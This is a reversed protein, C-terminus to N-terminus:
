GRAPYGYVRARDMRSDLHLGVMRCPQRANWPLVFSWWLNNIRDEEAEPIQFTELVSSMYKTVEPSFKTNGWVVGTAKDVRYPILMREAQYNKWPGDPDVFKGKNRSALYADPDFPEKDFQDFINKGKTAVFKQEQFCLALVVDKGRRTQTYKHEKNGVSADCGLVPPEGPGTITFSVNETRPSVFVIASGFGVVIFAAILKAMRRAGEFMNIAMTQSPNKQRRYASWVWWIGWIVALPLLGLVLFLAFGHREDAGVAAIAALWLFSLVIALRRQWSAEGELLNMGM